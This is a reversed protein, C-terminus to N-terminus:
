LLIEFFITRQCIRSYVFFNTTKIFYISSRLLVHNAAEMSRITMWLMYKKANFEDMSLPYIQDDDIIQEFVNITMVNHTLWCDARLDM